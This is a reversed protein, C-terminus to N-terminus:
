TSSGAPPARGFLVFLTLRPRARYSTHWATLELADSDGREDIPVDVARVPTYGFWPRWLIMEKAWSPCPAADRSSGGVAIRYKGELMVWNQRRTDWYSLDRRTLEFEVEKTEGPALEVKEFGRLVRVPFDTGEAEEAGEPYSLYLQAVAKGAVDGSNTVDVTVRVYAAWLDPNGGEDGGAPSLEAPTRYGDPYPYAEPDWPAVADVDDLYPYVYKDLRRIEAPFAAEGLDPVSTNYAPPAAAPTPRPAPLTSRRILERVRLNSFGFTTYSLGFGFEFRPAIAHKDFYRYDIYIGEDFDQQPVVGNPRYMVAAGPGFDALSRGITYPLKGSPNVAGLIVDALSSGSEQGPLNALVVAKVGPIDIWNEMVVPGVAHVVVITSGKGGGCSSAVLVVLEEGGVQLYLDNRDGGINSWTLYGEGADANAFVICVDQRSLIDAEDQLPLRNTLHTTIETADPDFREALADVPYVLYPFEVAGSGWGSALTGQNCGRDKCYNAGKGPGADEGFIGIRTKPPSSPSFSEGEETKARSKINAPTLPLIGDENKLLVIGETAVERAIRGHDGQVDVWQNVEVVDQETPSGPAAVGYGDNTWSSFNPGKRDFVDEDDQGLQYWAAVIRTAMDNIREVPVSGNLVAETLRPGWLSEGKAWYLGDGPMTMDLGALASGVGSRQALWDSMVFGQFGMEDKLIGNLLKSNACGYSNNVQNYSCMVSAVGAKVADYFPWAYMEHM